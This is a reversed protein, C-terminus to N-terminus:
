FDIDAFFDAMHNELQGYYNSLCMCISRCLLTSIFIIIVPPPALLTHASSKSIGFLSKNEKGIWRIHGICGLVDRTVTLHFWQIKKKLKMLFFRLTVKFYFCYLIFCFLVLCSIIYFYSITLYINAEKLAHPFLKFSISVQPFYTLRNTECISLYATYIFM